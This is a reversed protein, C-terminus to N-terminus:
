SSGRERWRLRMGPDRGGHPHERRWGCLNVAAATKGAPALDIELCDFFAGDNLVTCGATTFGQALLRAITHIRKAIDNVGEPGHYVAYAAAM